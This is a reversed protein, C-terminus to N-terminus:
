FQASVDTISPWLNRIQLSWEVVPAVFADAVGAIADINGYRDTQWLRANFPIFKVALVSMHSWTVNHQDLGTKWM